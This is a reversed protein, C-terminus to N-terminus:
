FLFASVTLSIDNVQVDETSWRGFLKMDTFVRIKPTEAVVKAVEEAAKEPPNDDWNDEM